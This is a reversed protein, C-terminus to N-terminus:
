EEEFSIIRKLKYLEIPEVFNPIDICSEKIMEFNYQRIINYSEQSSNKTTLLFFPGTHSAIIEKVKQKWKDSAIYDFNSQIRIFRTERPFSPIVFAIPSNSTMIVMSKEMEPIVPIVIGFYNSGSWGLRGWNPVQMTSILLIFISIILLFRLKLTTLLNLILLMIFLPILLELPALYRYYSFIIAWIVFSIIFFTLLFKFESTTTHKKKSILRWCSIILYIVTLAIAIPFGLSNFPLECIKKSGAGIFSFPLMLYEYMSSPLWGLGLFSKPLAYPSRFIQNFFPFIPNKFHIYLLFAWYGDMIIFGLISGMTFLFFERLSIYSFIKKQTLPSGIRVIFLSVAGACAYPAFVLKIGTACGFLFGSLLIMGFLVKPNDPPKLYLKLLLYLGSLVFISLTLDGMTIGLESIAIPAYMGVTACIFSFIWKPFTQFPLVLFTIIFILFWNIGQISGLIFGVLKQPFFSILTYHFIDLVPNLFTQIQAPICDKFSRGTIIAYGNYFHYNRLDWNVDKGLSLSLFGFTIICFFLLLILFKNRM